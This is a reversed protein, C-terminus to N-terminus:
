AGKGPRRSKPRMTGNRALNLLDVDPWLTDIQHCTGRTEQSRALGKAIMGGLLHSREITLHDHHRVDAQGAQPTDTNEEPM